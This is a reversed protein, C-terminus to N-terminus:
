RARESESVRESVRERAMQGCRERERERYIYIYIYIYIERERERERTREREGERERESPVDAASSSGAPSCPHQKCLPTTYMVAGAVSAGTTCM